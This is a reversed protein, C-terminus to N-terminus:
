RGLRLFGFYSGGGCVGRDCFSPGLLLIHNLLILKMLDYMLEFSLFSLSGGPLDLFLLFELEDLELELLLPVELSQSLEM